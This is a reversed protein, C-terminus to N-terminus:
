ATHEWERIAEKILHRVQEDPVEDAHHYEQRDMEILLSGDAAVGIHIRRPALEPYAMLNRQLIKEIQDLISSPPAPHKPQSPAETTQAPSAAAAAVGGVTAFAASATSVAPQSKGESAKVLPISGAFRQLGNLAELIKSAARDDHIDNLSRYQMGNVEVVWDKTVPDRLVVIADPPLAPVATTRTVTRSATDALSKVWEPAPKDSATRTHAAPDPNRSRLAGYIGVGLLIVALVIIGGIVFFQTIEM